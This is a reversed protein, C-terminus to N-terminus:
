VIAWFKKQCIVVSESVNEERQLSRIATVNWLYKPAIDLVESLISDSDRIIIFGQMSAFNDTLQLLLYFLSSSKSVLLAVLLKQYMFTVILLQEIQFEVTL